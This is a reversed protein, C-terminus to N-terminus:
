GENALARPCTAVIHDFYADVLREWTEALAELAATYEGARTGEVCRQSERWVREDPWADILFTSLFTFNVHDGAVPRNGLDRRM